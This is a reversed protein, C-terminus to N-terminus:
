KLRTPLRVVTASGSGSFGGGPGGGPKRPPPWPTGRGLMRTVPRRSPPGPQRRIQARELSPSADELMPIEHRTTLLADPGLSGAERRDTLLILVTLGCQITEGPRIAAPEGPKILVDGVRTGNASGVDEITLAREGAASAVNIRAHQRSVLRDKPQV